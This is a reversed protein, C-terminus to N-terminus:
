GCRIQGKLVREVVADVPHFPTEVPVYCGVPVDRALGVKEWNLPEFVLRRRSGAMAEALATSGSRPTSFILLSRGPDRGLDLYLRSPSVAQRVRHPVVRVPAGSRGPRWRGFPGRGRTPQGLAPGGRRPRASRDGVGEPERGSGAPVARGRDRVPPRGRARRLGEGPAGPAPGQRG